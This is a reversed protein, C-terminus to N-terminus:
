YKNTTLRNNPNYKKCGPGKQGKYFKPPRFDCVPGCGYQNYDPVGYNQGWQQGFDGCPNWQGCSNNWPGFKNKRNKAEVPHDINERLQKVANNSIKNFYGLQVPKKVRELNCLGLEGVSNDGLGYINNDSGLLVIHTDSIAMDKIGWNPCITTIYQPIVSNVFCKWQGSGYVAGSNTVYFTVTKGAFIHVLPSDLKCTNVGRWCVVTEFSGIGLQGNCNLGITFVENPCTGISEALVTINNYGLAIDIVKKNLSFLTPVDPTIAQRINKPNTTVFRVHDGGKLYTNIIKSGIPNKYKPSPYYCDLGLAYKLNTLQVPDLISGYNLIFQRNETSANITFDVNCRKGNSTFRIGGHRSTDIYCYVNPGDVCFDLKVIRDLPITTTGICYRNLDFEITTNLDVEITTLDPCGQSDLKSTAKANLLTISGIASSVPAGYPCDCDGAVNFYVYGDCPECIPACPQQEGCSQIRRLFDCVDLTQNSCEEGKNFNVHIGFKSLDTKPQNDKQKNKRNGNGKNCNLQDAPFSVSINNARNFIDDDCSNKVLDKNSRINGLSGLQYMNGCDDVLVTNNFGAVAIKWCPQPLEIPAPAPKKDCCDLPVDFDLKLAVEDSPCLGTFTANCLGTLSSRCGKFEILITKCEFDFAVGPFPLGCPLEINAIACSGCKGYVQASGTIPQRYSNCSDTNPTPCPDAEFFLIETTSSTNFEKIHCGCEDKTTFKSIFCGCNIYLKTITYDIRGTACGKDNVCLYGLYSIDGYVPISLIGEKGPPKVTVNSVELYGLLVGCRIDSVCSPTVCTSKCQPIVPQLLENYTGTFAYCSNNDHVNKDTILIEVATDYNCQGQPVLQYNENNGAGWVKHNETLIIVHSTGTSIHVARDGKGCVIPSYIERPSSYEVNYTYEFVSGETNLIYISNETLKAVRIQGIISHNKIIEQFSYYVKKNILGTQYLSGGNTVVATTEDNVAITIPTNNLMKQVIHGVNSIM